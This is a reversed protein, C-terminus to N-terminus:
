PDLIPSKNYFYALLEKKFVVRFLWSPLSINTLLLSAEDISCVIICLETFFLYFLCFELFEARPWVEFM